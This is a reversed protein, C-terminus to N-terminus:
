KEGIVACAIVTRGAGDLANVDEGSDLIRRVETDDGCMAARHLPFRDM